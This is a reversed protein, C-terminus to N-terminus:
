TIRVRYESLCNKSSTKSNRFTGTKVLKQMHPQFLVKFVAESIMLVTYKLSVSIFIFFCGM